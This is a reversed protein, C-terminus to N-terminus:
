VRWGFGSPRARRPDRQCLRRPHARRHGPRIAGWDRRPGIGGPPQLLLAPLRRHRAPDSRAPRHRPRHPRLSPWGRPPLPHQRAQPGRPHRAAPYARVPASQGAGRGPSPPGRGRGPLPDPRAGTGGPPTGGLGPRAPGPLGPHRPIRAPERGAPRSGPGGGLPPVAGPRVRGRAGPGPDRGARLNVADPIREMLRWLNGDRDVAFAAGDRRPIPAPITIGPSPHCALHGALVGLNAMIREPHPFVQRNVRQLVYGGADTELSFTANILGQGLPAVSTPRGTIAFGAALAILTSADYLELERATM